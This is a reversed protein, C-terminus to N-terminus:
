GQDDASSQVIVKIGTVITRETDGNGKKRDVFFGTRDLIDRSAALRVQENKAKQSLRIVMTAADKASEELFAKVNSKGLNEKIPSAKM